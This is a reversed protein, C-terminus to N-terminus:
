KSKNKVVILQTQSIMDPWSQKDKGLWQWWFGLGLCLWSVLAAAFRLSAQKWTVERQQQGILYVKWARMGLTQGGHTWFWGYFFLSVMLLYFLFLPNSAGIAQGGNIVVPIVTALFLASLLLLLDYLMVMLQRFLGPRPYSETM